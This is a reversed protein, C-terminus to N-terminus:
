ALKSDRARGSTAIQETNQSRDEHAACRYDASDACNGTGDHSRKRDTKNFRADNSRAKGAEPRLEDITNHDHERQNGVSDVTGLM